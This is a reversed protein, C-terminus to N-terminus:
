GNAGDKAPPYRFTMWRTMLWFMVRMVADPATMQSADCDVAMRAGVEGTVKGWPLAKLRAEAEAWDRAMVSVSFTRGEFPYDILFEKFDQIQQINVSM